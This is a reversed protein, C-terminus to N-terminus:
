AAISLSAGAALTGSGAGQFATGLATQQLGILPVACDDIGDELVKLPALDVKKYLGGAGRKLQATVEDVTCGKIVDQVVGLIPSNFTVTTLFFLDGYGPGLQQLFLYWEAIEISASANYKNEGITKSLPDPHNGRIEERTRKRGYDISEFATFLQGFLNLEISSYSFAAGNIIPYAIGSM